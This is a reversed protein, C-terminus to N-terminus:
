NPQRRAFGIMGALAGLLLLLGAPSHNTSTSAADIFCWSGDHHRANSTYGPDGLLGDANIGQIYLDQANGTIRENDVWIAVAGGQGNSTLRPGYYIDNGDTLVTGDEGWLKNGEADCRQVVIQDSSNEWGTIFGGLGDEVTKRPHQATDDFEGPASLQVPDPWIFDGTSGIYQAYATSSDAWTIFAGGSGDSALDINSGDISGSAISVGGATWVIDGSGDVKQAYLGGSGDVTWIVITGGTGSPILRPCSGQGDDTLLLPDGDNWQLVGSSNIRQVAIDNSEEWTCIAGGAGDSVIKPAYASDEPSLQVPNDADGWPLIGDANIRNVQAYYSMLIAGGSGDSAIFGCEDDSIVKVGDVAWLPEGDANLRQAYVDEYDRYDTWSVIIGGSGDAVAETQSSDQGCVEIGRPDWQANGAADFRQAYIGPVERDRWVAYYGGQGDYVIQPRCQQGLYEIVPTNVEPDSSWAALATQPIMLWASICLVAFLGWSGKGWRWQQQNEQTNRRM